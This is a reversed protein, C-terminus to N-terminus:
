VILLRLAFQLQGLDGKLIEKAKVEMTKYMKRLFFWLGSM